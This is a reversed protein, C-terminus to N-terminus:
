VKIQNIKKIELESGVEKPNLVWDSVWVQMTCFISLMWSCQDVIVLNKKTKPKSPGVIHWEWEVGIPVCLKTSGSEMAMYIKMM